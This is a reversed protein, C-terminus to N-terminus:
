PRGSVPVLRPLRKTSEKRVAAVTFLMVSSRLMHGCDVMNEIQTAIEVPPTQGDMGSIMYLYFLYLM